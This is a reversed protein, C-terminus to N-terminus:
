KVDEKVLKMEKLTFALLNRSKLERMDESVIEQLALRIRVDTFERRVNSILREHPMKSYGEEPKKDGIYVNSTMLQAKREIAYRDIQTPNSCRTVNVNQELRYGKGYFVPVRYVRTKVRLSYSEVRIENEQIEENAM